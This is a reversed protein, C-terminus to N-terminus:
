RRSQACRACLTTSPLLELRESEISGGCRSCVGYTGESIRRLAEDIAELKERAQNRMALNFEWQYVAPDGAGLTYDPKVELREDLEEIQTLIEQREAQLREKMEQMAEASNM